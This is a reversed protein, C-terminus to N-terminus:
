SGKRLSEIRLLIKISKRYIIIGLITPISLLICLIDIPLMIINMVIRKLLNRNKM